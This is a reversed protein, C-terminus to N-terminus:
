CITRATTELFLIESFSSKIHTQKECLPRTHSWFIQFIMRTMHVSNNHHIMETVKLDLQIFHVAILPKNWYNTPDQNRSNGKIRERERQLFPCCSCSYSYSTTHNKNDRKEFHDTLNHLSKWLTPTLTHAHTNAHEAKNQTQGTKPKATSFFLQISM